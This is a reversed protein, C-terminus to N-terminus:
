SRKKKRCLAVAIASRRSRPKARIWLSRGRGLTTPRMTSTPSTTSLTAMRTSSMASVQPVRAYTSGSEKVKGRSFSPPARSVSVMGVRHDVPLRRGRDFLVAGPFDDGDHRVADQAAVGDVDEVVAHEGLDDDGVGHGEAVLDVAALLDADDVHAGGDGLGDPPGVVALADPIITGHNRM